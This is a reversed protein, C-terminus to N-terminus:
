VSNRRKATFGLMALGLGLMAYSSPEPVPVLVATVDPTFGVQTFTGFYVLGNSTEATVKAGVFDLSTAGYGSNIASDPDWSFSFVDFTNFNTFTFGFHAGSGFFTATGGSPANISFPSGDIVLYSGDTTSSTSFDFTLKTVDYSSGNFALTNISFGDAGPESVLISGFAFAQTSAFGLSLAFVLNRLKM